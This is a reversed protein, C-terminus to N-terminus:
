INANKKIIETIVKNNFDVNKKDTIYGFKLSM